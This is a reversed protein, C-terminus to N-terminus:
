LRAAPANPGGRCGRRRAGAGGTRPTSTAPPTSSRQALPGRWKGSFTVGM